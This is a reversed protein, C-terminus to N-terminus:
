SFMTLPGLQVLGRSCWHGEPQPAMHLRNHFHVVLDCGGLGLLVPGLGLVLVLVLVVGLVLVPVIVLGPGFVLEPALM